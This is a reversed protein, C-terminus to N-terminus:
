SPGYVANHFKHFKVVHSKNCDKSKVSSNGDGNGESDFSTDHTPALYAAPLASNIHFITRGKERARHYSHLAHRKHSKLQPTPLSKVVFKNDEFMYARKHTPVRLYGSVHMLMSDVDEQEDDDTCNVNTYMRLEASVQTPLPDIMRKTPEGDITTMKADHYMHIETLDRAPLSDIIRQEGDISTVEVDTHVHLEASVQAPLPDIMRNAPEGGIITMEVETINVVTVTTEGCTVDTPQGNAISLANKFTSTEMTALIPDDPDKFVSYENLQCIELTAHNQWKTEDEFQGMKLVAYNRPKVNHENHENRQLVDIVKRSYETQINDSGTEVNAIVEDQTGDEANANRTVKDMVGDCQEEGIKLKFKIRDEDSRTGQEHKAIVEAVRAQKMLITRGILDNPCDFQLMIDDKVKEQAPTDAPSMEPEGKATLAEPESDTAVANIDDRLNEIYQTFGEGDFIDNIRFHQSTPDLASRVESHCIIRPTSEHDYKTSYYLPQFGLLSDAPFANFLICVYILCLLLCSSPTSTCDTPPNTTSKVYHLKRDTFLFVELSFPVRSVYHTKLMVFVRGTAWLRIKEADLWIQTLSRFSFSEKWAMITTTDLKVEENNSSPGFFCQLLENEVSSSIGFFWDPLQSRGSKVDQNSGDDGVLMFDPREKDASPSSKMGQEQLGIIPTSSTSNNGRNDQFAEELMEERRALEGSQSHRPAASPECSTPNTSSCVWLLGGQMKQLQEESLVSTTLSYDQKEEEVGEKGGDSTDFLSDTSEEAYLAGGKFETANFVLRSKVDEGDKPSDDDVKGESASSIGHTQALFKTASISDLNTPDTDHLKTSFAKDPTRPSEQGESPSDDDVKGESQFSIDHVQANFKAVSVSDLNNSNTDHLKSSYAGDPTMHKSSSNTSPSPPKGGEGQQELHRTEVQCEITRKLAETDKKDGRLDDCQTAALDFDDIVEAHINISPETVKQTQSPDRKIGKKYEYLNGRTSASKSNTSNGPIPKRVFDAKLYSTLELQDINVWDTDLILNGSAYRYKVFAQFSRLMEIEHSTLSTDNGNADKYEYLQAIIPVFTVIDITSRFGHHTIFLFIAENGDLLETCIHKFIETKVASYRTGAAM